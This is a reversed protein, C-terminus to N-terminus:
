SFRTRIAMEDAVNQIERVFEERLSADMRSTPCGVCIAGLIDAVTDSVSVAVADMGEVTEESSLAYGQERVTELEASLADRETISHETQAPLGRTEVIADVASVPLEALMAKGVASSHLHHRTGIRSHQYLPNQNSAWYLTVSYGNEITSLWVRADTEDALRDIYERGAKYLPHLRRTQTGVDLFWFSLRYEDGDRVVFENEVLTALHRHTTSHALGVEDAIASMTMGNTGLLTRIIDAATDVTKVPRRPATSNM